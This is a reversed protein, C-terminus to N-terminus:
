REHIICCGEADGLVVNVLCRFHNVITSFTSIRGIFEFVCVYTHRHFSLSLRVFASSNHLYVCVGACRRLKLVSMFVQQCRHTLRLMQVSNTRLEINMM